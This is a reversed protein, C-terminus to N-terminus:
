AAGEPSALLDVIDRLGLWWQRKPRHHAADVLRTFDEFGTFQVRGETM